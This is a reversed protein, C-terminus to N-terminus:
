PKKHPTKTKPPMKPQNKPPMKSVKKSTSDAYCSGDITYNSGWGQCDSLSQCYDPCANGYKCYNNSTSPTGCPLPDNSPSPDKLTATCYCAGCDILCGIAESTSFIGMLSMLSLYTFLTKKAM